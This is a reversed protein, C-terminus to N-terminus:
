RGNKKFNANQPPIGEGKVVLDVRNEKRTM